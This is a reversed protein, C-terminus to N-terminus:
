AGAGEQSLLGGVGRIRPEALKLAIEAARAIRVVLAAGRGPAAHGPCWSAMPGLVDSAALRFGGTSGGLGGVGPERFGTFEGPKYREHRLEDAGLGTVGKDRSRKSCVHLLQLRAM